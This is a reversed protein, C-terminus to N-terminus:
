QKRNREPDRHERQKRNQHESNGACRIEETQEPGDGRRLPVPVAWALHDFTLISDHIFSVRLSLGLHRRSAFLADIEVPRLRLNVKLSRAHM